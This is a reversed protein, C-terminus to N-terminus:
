RGPQALVFPVVRASVAVAQGVAFRLAKSGRVGVTNRVLTLRTPVKTGPVPSRALPITRAVSGFAGRPNRLVLDSSQSGRSPNAQSINPLPLVIRRAM